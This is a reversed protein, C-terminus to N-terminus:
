FKVQLRNMQLIFNCFFFFLTRPSKWNRLTNENASNLFLAEPPSRCVWTGPQDRHDVQQGPVLGAHQLNWEIARASNRHPSVLSFNEWSFGTLSSLFLQRKSWICLHWRLVVLIMFLRPFMDDGFPFFFFFFSWYSVRFFHLDTFTRVFFKSHDEFFYLSIYSFMTLWILFVTFSSFSIDLLAFSVM